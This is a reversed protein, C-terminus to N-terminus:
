PGHRPRVGASRSPPPPPMRAMAASARTDRQYKPPSADHPAAQQVCGSSRTLTLATSPPGASFSQTSRGASTGRAGWEAVQTVKSQDRPRESASEGASKLVSTRGASMNLSHNESRLQLCGPLVM